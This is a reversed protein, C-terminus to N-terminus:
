ALQFIQTSCFTAHELPGNRSFAEKAKRTELANGDQCILAGAEQLFGDPYLLKSGAIAIDPDNEMTQYLGKLWGPLVITDNNLLVLYRGRARKAANNGNRLFGLNSLTREVRLGPFIESARV